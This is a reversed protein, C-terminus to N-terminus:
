RIISCRASVTDLEGGRREAKGAGGGHLATSTDQGQSAPDDLTYKITKADQNKDLITEKTAMNTVRVNGVDGFVAGAPTDVDRNSEGPRIVKLGDSHGQKVAQSPSGGGSASGLDVTKTIETMKTHSEYMPTPSPRRDAEEECHSPKNKIGAEYMLVQCLEMIDSLASVDIARQSEVKDRVLKEVAGSVDNVYESVRLGEVRDHHEEGKPMGEQSEKDMSKTTDGAEVTVYANVDDVIYRGPNVNQEVNTHKENASM